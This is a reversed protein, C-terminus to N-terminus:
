AQKDAVYMTQGDAEFRWLMEAEILYAITRYVSPRSVFGRLSERVQEVCFLGQLAFVADVVQAANNSMRWGRSALFAAYRDRHSTAM